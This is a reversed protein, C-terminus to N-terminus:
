EITLRIDEIGLTRLRATLEDFNDVTPIPGIQVRWLTRGDVEAGQVRIGVAALSSVRDMLREANARDGFAGLQLYLQPEGPRPLDADGM